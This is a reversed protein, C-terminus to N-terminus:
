SAGFWVIHEQIGRLLIQHTHLVRMGLGEPLTVDDQIYM